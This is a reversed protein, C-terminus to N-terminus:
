PAALHAEQAKWRHWAPNSPVRELAARHRATPEFLGSRRGLNSWGELARYPSVDVVVSDLIQEALVDMQGVIQRITVPLQESKHQVFRCSPRKLKHVFAHHGTNHFTSMRQGTQPNVNIIERLQGPAVEPTRAAVVADAYIGREIADFANSDSMKHLEVTEFDKSHRQLGRLPRARYRFPTEGSMPAPAKTGLASYAADARIQIDAFAVSDARAKEADARMCKAVAEKDQEAADAALRETEGQDEADKRKKDQREKEV